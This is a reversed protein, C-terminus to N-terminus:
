NFHWRRCIQLISKFNGLPARLHTSVRGPTLFGITATTQSGHVISLWIRILNLSPTQELQRICSQTKYRLYHSYHAWPAPFNNCFISPFESRVIYISEPAHRSRVWFITKLRLLGYKIHKLPPIMAIIIIIIVILIIRITISSESSACYHVPHCRMELQLFHSAPQTVRLEDPYPIFILHFPPSPPYDPNRLLTTVTVM